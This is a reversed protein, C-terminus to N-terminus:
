YITTPTAVVAEGVSKQTPQFLPPHTNTIFIFEPFTQQLVMRAASQEASCRAELKEKGKKNEGSAARLLPSAHGQEETTNHLYFRQVCVAGEITCTM